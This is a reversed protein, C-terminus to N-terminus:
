YPISVLDEYCHRTKIQFCIECVSPSRFHLRGHRPATSLAPSTFYSFCLVPLLLDYTMWIILRKITACFHSLRAAIPSDVCTLLISHFTIDMCYSSGLMPWYKNLATTPWNGKYMILIKVNLLCSYLRRELLYIWNCTGDVILKSLSSNGMTCWNSPILNLFWEFTRSENWKSLKLWIELLRKM